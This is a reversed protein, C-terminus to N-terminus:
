SMISPILSALEPRFILLISLIAVIIVICWRCKVIVNWITAKDKSLKELILIQVITFLGESVGQLKEEQSRGNTNEACEQLLNRYLVKNTEDLKKSEDIKSLTSELQTQIKPKFM